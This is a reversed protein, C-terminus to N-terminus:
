YKEMKNNRQNQRKFNTMENSNNSPKQSTKSLSASRIRQKACGSTQPLNLLNTKEDSEIEVNDDDIFDLLDLRNQWNIDSNIAMSNTASSDTTAAGLKLSKKPLNKALNLGGIAGCESSTKKTALVSKKTSYELESAFKKMKVIHINVADRLGNFETLVNEYLIKEDTSIEETQSNLGSPGAISSYDEDEEEALVTRPINNNSNVQEVYDRLFQM